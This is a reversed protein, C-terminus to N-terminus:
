FLDLAINFCCYNNMIQPIKYELHTDVYYKHNQAPSSSPSTTCLKYGTLIRLQAFEYM